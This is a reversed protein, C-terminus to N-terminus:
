VDELARRMLGHIDSEFRGEAEIFCANISLAWVGGIPRGVKKGQYFTVAPTQGLINQIARGVEIALQRRPTLNNDIPVGIGDIADDCGFQIWSLATVIGQISLYGKYGFGQSSLAANLYRKVGGADGKLNQALAEATKKILEANARKQGDTPRGTDLSTNAKRGLKYRHIVLRIEDLFLSEKESTTNAIGAIEVKFDESLEKPLDTPEKYGFKVKARAM